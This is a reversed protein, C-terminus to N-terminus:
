LLASAAGLVGGAIMGAPGAGMGMITGGMSSGLMGGAAAGSMAGGIASSALSPTKNAQTTGGGIGALLNAGHQFAELDWLADKEDIELNKDAEEKLAVIRIRKAETLMRCYDAWSQYKHSWIRSMADIAKFKLEERRMEKQENFQGQQLNKEMNAVGVKIFDGQNAKSTEITAQLNTAAIKFLTDQNAKEASLDLDANHGEVKLENQQNTQAVALNLDANYKKLHLENQQNTQAVSLDKKLNATEMQTQKQLNATEIQTALEANTFAAKGYIDASFKAVDRDRFAEIIARGIPFASSVVANIDRMGAEFRPLVNANIDDDLTAAFSDVADDLDSPDVVVTSADSVNRDAVFIDSVTYAPVSIDPVTYSPTSMEVGATDILDIEFYTGIVLDAVSVDSYLPINMIAQAYFDNWRSEPDISGVDTGFSEVGTEFENIPVTPNYAAEATYPSSGLASNLADTISSIVSDVGGNNLWNGHVAEMYDPYDVQGSGGGGGGGKATLILSTIKSLM